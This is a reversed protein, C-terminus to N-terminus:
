RAPWPGVLRRFREIGAFTELDDEREPGGLGTKAPHAPDMLLQLWDRSMHADLSAQLAAFAEDEVMGIEDQLAQSAGGEAAQAVLERHKQGLACAKYMQITADEGTAPDAAELATILSLALDPQPPQRYLADLIRNMATVRPAVDISEAQAGARAAHAAEHAGAADLVVALDSQSYANRRLEALRTFGDIADGLRLRRAQANAWARVEDATMEETLEESSLLDVAERLDADAHVQGGDLTADRLLESVDRYRLVGVAMRLAQERSAERNAADRDFEAAEAVRDAAARDRQAKEAEKRAKRAQAEARRVGANELDMAAEALERSLLLTMLLYAWLFGGITGAILAAPVVAGAAPYRVLGADMLLYHLLSTFGHGIDRAQVLGVGVIIKTLWDAIENLAPSARYSALIQQAVTASHSRTGGAAAPETPTADDVAPPRQDSGRAAGAGGQTAALAQSRPDLRPLGFLFGFFAGILGAAVVLGAVTAFAGIIHFPAGLILLGIASWADSWAFPWGAAATAAARWTGAAIAWLLLVALGAILSRRGLRASVEIGRLEGDADRLDDEM